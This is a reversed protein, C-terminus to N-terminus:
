DIQVLSPACAPPAPSMTNQTAATSTPDRPHPLIPLSRRVPAILLITTVNDLFASITGTVLCLLLMLRKKDGGSRVRPWNTTSFCCITTRFSDFVLARGHPSVDIVDVAAQGEWLM